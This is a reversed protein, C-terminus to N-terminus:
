NDCSNTILDSHPLLEIWECFQRWELLRHSRRALYINRLVQYNASWTSTFNFGRPLVEILARWEKAQPGKRKGSAVWEEILENTIGIVKSRTPESVDEMSFHSEDLKVKGLTHMSSTSNRTTGVKYTDHDWWFFSPATMSIVVPLQRMFKSHDTGSKILNKALEKDSDGFV